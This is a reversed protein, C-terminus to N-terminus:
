VLEDGAHQLDPGAPHVTVRAIVIGEEGLALRVLLLQLGGVLILLALDVAELRKGVAEARLSRLRRLCLRLELLDIAHLLDFQGVLVPALHLDLKRLRLPAALPDDRQLVNMVGVSWVHNVRAHLKFGLPALPDHQDAGVARAFGRQELQQRLRDRQLAAFALQAM